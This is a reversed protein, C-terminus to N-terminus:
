RNIRWITIIFGDMNNGSVSYPTDREIEFITIEKDASLYSIEIVSSGFDYQLPNHGYRFQKIRTHYEELTNGMQEMILAHPTGVYRFHWPEYFIGTINEKGKPYREIFGFRSAMERFVGCIGTYPFYPRLFDIDPQNLALDVALGTQHESHGPLAIYKATFDVGNEMLSDTYIKEQERQSRWGSVATIQGRACLEDILKEFIAAFRCELLVDNNTTEVPALHEHVIKIYPNNQNVLILHGTHVMDRTLSITKM